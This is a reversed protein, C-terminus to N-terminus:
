AHHERQKPFQRLAGGGPAVPTGARVSRVAEGAGAGAGAGVLVTFLERARLLAERREETDAAEPRAKARLVRYAEIQEGHDVSIADIRADVDSDPYGRERAVRALLTEAEALAREPSDVFHMQVEAWQQEARARASPELPALVLEGHQSVRQTLEQEAAATDGGYRAVTRGYEPGFRRKLDPHRERRQRVGVAVLVAVAVAVLVVAVILGSSM